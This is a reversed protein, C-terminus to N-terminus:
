PSQQTGAAAAPQHLHPAMSERGPFSGRSSPPAATAAANFATAAPSGAPARGAEACGAGGSAPGAAGRSGALVAAPSCPASVFAVPVRLTWEPANAGLLSSAAAAAVAAGAVAAGAVAAAAAMTAAAAATAWGPEGRQVAGRSARRGACLVSSSSNSCSYGRLCGPGRRQKDPPGAATPPAESAVATATPPSATPAATDAAM